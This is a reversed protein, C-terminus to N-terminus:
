GDKREGATSSTSNEISGELLQPYLRVVKQTLETLTGDNEIVFDAIARYAEDSPQRNARASVREATSADRAAVREIRRALPSEVIVVADFEELSIEPALASEHVLLDAGDGVAQRLVERFAARVRPHVLANMKIREDEDLFIRSALYARNLDGDTGYSQPGFTDVLEARLVPDSNMLHKAVDDARFVTAGLDELINCVTTKGSGIGGSVAIVRTRPFRAEGSRQSQKASKDREDTDM